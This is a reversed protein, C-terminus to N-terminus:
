FAGLRRAGVKSKIDRHIVHNAHLFHLGRVIDMAIGKGRQYWSLEGKSDNTLAARLDGGQLLWIFCPTM